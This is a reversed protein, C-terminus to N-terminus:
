AAGKAAQAAAEGALLMEHADPCLISMMELVTARAAKGQTVMEDPAGRPNGYADTRRVLQGRVYQEDSAAALWLMWERRRRCYESFLREGLPTQEAGAAAVELADIVENRPVRDDILMVRMEARPGHQIHGAIRACLWARESSGLDQIAHKLANRKMKPRVFKGHEFVMGPDPGPGSFPLWEWENDSM